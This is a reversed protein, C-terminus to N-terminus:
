KEVGKGAIVPANKVTKNIMSEVAKSTVTAGTIADFEDYKESKTGEPVRKLEGKKGRFQEKFWSEAIRAGLGPTETHVTFDIGAITELDSKLGVHGKIVGWLGQGSSQFVAVTEADDTVVSYYLINGAPDKIEKVKESYVKEIEVPSDSVKIQATYLVSRKLFLSENRVVTSKTFLFVFSLIGIFFASVSFMFLVTFIRQKTKSKGTMM